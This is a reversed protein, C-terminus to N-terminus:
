REDCNNAPSNLRWFWVGFKKNAGGSIAFNCNQGGWLQPLAM